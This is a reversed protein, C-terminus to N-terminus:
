TSRIYEKAIETGRDVLVKALYGNLYVSSVMRNNISLLSFIADVKGDGTFRYPEEEKPIVESVISKLSSNFSVKDGSVLSHEDGIFYEVLIGGEPIEVGNIRNRYPKSVELEVRRLSKKKTVAEEKKILRLLKQRYSQVFAKCSESMINPDGIWYVKIDTIRGSHTADATHRM